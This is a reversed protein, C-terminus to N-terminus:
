RISRPAGPLQPVGRARNAAVLRPDVPVRSAQRVRRPAIQSHIVLMGIVFYLYTSYAQSLFTCGVAYGVFSAALCQGLFQDHRTLALRGVRRAERIALFLLLVFLSLGVVGLEAGIQVYSNHASTWRFGRNVLARERAQPSMTGEAVDFQDIGVGFVPREAMYGAGRKWVEMRGSEDKGAFNYDEQPALITRIRTWYEDGGAGLMVAAILVTAGLRKGPPVARLGILCYGGVAILALFGGRSGSLVTATMLTALGAVGVLRDLRSAGRRVLYLCLPITSVTFLGLDNPDYSGGGLRGAGPRAFAMASVVYGAGGLVFIRLLRDLNRRDRVSAILIGVALVTKGFNSTIFQLSNGMRLSTPVSMVAFVLICLVIRYLPHKLYALRRVTGKGTVFLLVAGVSVLATFQVYRLLPYMEQVRWVYQLIVGCLAIFLPTWRAAATKARGPTVGTVTNARGIFAPQTV